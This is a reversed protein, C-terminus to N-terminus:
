SIGRSRLEYPGGLIVSVRQLQELQSALFTQYGVWDYNEGDVSYTIKFNLLNTAAGAAVAADVNAQTPNAIVESCAVLARSYNLIARQINDRASAM